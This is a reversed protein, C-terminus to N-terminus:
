PGSTISVTVVSSYTDVLTGGPVTLTGVSTLTYQGDGSGAAANWIKQGTGSVTTIPFVNQNPSAIAPNGADVAIAGVALSLKGASFSRTNGANRFDTASLVINWGLGTGRNDLASIVFSGTRTTDAFSYQVSPFTVGTISASLGAGSVPTIQVVANDSPAAITTAVTALLMGLGFVVSLLHKSIGTNM